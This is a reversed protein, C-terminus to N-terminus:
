SQEEIFLERFKDVTLAPIKALALNEEVHTPNSMGVLATVLGPASRAFQLAMQAASQLGAGLVDVLEPPMRRVLRGLHLASGGFAVLGLECAAMLPPLYRGNIRQNNQCYGELMTLNFPILVARFRHNQGAVDAACQVLEGITLLQTSDKDVRFGQYAAVGYGAIKGEAVLLEFTEFAKRLRRLFDQRDVEQLQTEPNHLYYIDISELNLNTLSAIVQHRLFAPAMCHRAVVVDSRRVVGPRILTEEFYEDPTGTHAADFPLFGAKSCVVVEERRIKGEGILTGLVRGVERESLQNRYAVATDVVNCGFELARALAPEYHLDTATNTTGGFTGFGLSSVTLGWALRFHGPAADFRSAFSRTGEATAIGSIRM